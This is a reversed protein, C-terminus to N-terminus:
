WWWWWGGGVSRGVSLIAEKAEAVVFWCCPSQFADSFAGARSPRKL